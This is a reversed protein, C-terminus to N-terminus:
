GADREPEFPHPRLIGLPSVFRERAELPTPLASRDKRLSRRATAAAALPGFGNPDFSRVAADPGSGLLDWIARLSLEDYGRVGEEGVRWPSRAASRQVMTRWAGLRQVILQGSFIWRNTRHSFLTEALERMLFHDAHPRAIRELHGTSRLYRDPVHADYHMEWFAHGRGMGPASATLQAPVYVNHAVVDAALHCLYGWVVARQVEDDAKDYLGWAVNWNHSHQHEKIRYKKGLILDAIINGYFFPGPHAGLLRALEPHLLERHAFVISAYKLHTGPGWAAATEPTLVIALAALAALTIHLPLRRPPM